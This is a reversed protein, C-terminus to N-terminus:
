CLRISLFSNHMMMCQIAVSFKSVKDNLWQKDDLTKLDDDSLETFNEKDDDDSITDSIRIPQVSSM